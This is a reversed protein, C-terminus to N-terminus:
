AMKEAEGKEVAINAPNSYISEMMQMALQKGTKNLKFYMKVIEYSDKGYCQELLDCVASEKALRQNQNYQEEWQPDQGLLFEMSVNLYNAILQLKQHKPSSKGKKWDSFTSAPIHTDKAVRYATLHKEELLQCFRKYIEDM